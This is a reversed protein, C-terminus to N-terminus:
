EPKGRLNLYELAEEYIQLHHLMGHKRNFEINEKIKALNEDWKEPEALVHDALTLAHDSIEARTVAAEVTMVEPDEPLEIDEGWWDIDHTDDWEVDGPEGARFKALADQPSAAELDVWGFNTARRFIPIRYKM